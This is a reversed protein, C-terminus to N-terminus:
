NPKNKQQNKPINTNEIEAVMLPLDPNETEAVM